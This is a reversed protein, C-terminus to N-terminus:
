KDVGKAECKRLWAELRRLGEATSVQPQYGLDRKAAAINFWHSTAVAEALFRTMPPEGPLRFIKYCFELVAGLLWAVRFPVRGQVPEYGASNLIANVMDWAPMPEDQSIFYINGSLRSDQRLKDAALLHADAANDIYTTDVLNKGDGIQKLKKARALLRPVFHPDGPGWIEHPRLIITNLGQGAAKVVLQEAMSKTAPYDANYRAPYPFSEDVGELNGGNFIVSPTSTYILRAVRQNLCADIVNRTGVVNTRYYENYKGWPPPKAAVHFVVEVGRCAEDVAAPDSLDGQIQEVKLSELAPYHNRALSRVRDGRGVLRGVISLGLFGGGGTVLVSESSRNSSLKANM